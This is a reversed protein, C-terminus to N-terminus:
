IFEWPIAHSPRKIYNTRMKNLLPRKDSRYYQQLRSARGSQNVGDILHPELQQPACWMKVPKHPTLHWYQKRSDSFATSSSDRTQVVFHHSIIKCTLPLFKFFVVHQPLRFYTFLVHEGMAWLLVVWTYSDTRDTAQEIGGDPPDDTTGKNIDAQPLGVDLM